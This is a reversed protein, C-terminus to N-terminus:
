RLCQEVRHYVQEVSIASMEGGQIYHQHKGYTGILKPDTAGYLTINPKDLAATLHALGTDVSVVAKAQGIYYALETLTSKPLIKVQTLGQAILEARTLESENSWPLRVEVGLATLKEALKRWNEDLWFKDARTTGHFFLVFDVASKERNFHKSIGYDGQISPVEYGLASVFLQRIREVAHQQYSIAYQKDYFLSALPERISHRDYGHTIGKALRTAFLASKILGQADIVADYQQTQLLTRYTKWEKRTQASFPSKRWRRLAIPIVRNVAEHWRPIETFNEEVVWDVQLDPIAHLADTLAPFSHLIDGMSSTKILCVKM